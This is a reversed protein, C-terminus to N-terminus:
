KIEKNNDIVIRALVEVGESISGFDEHRIEKLEFTDLSFNDLNDLTLNGLSMIGSNEKIIFMVRSRTYNNYIVFLVNVKPIFAVEDATKGSFYKDLLTKVEDESVHIIEEKLNPLIDESLIIKM